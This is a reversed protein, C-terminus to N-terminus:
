SRSITAHIKKKKKKEEEKKEVLNLEKLESSLILLEIKEFQSLFVRVRANVCAYSRSDLLLFLSVSIHIRQVRARSLFFSSTFINETIENIARARRRAQKRANVIQVIVVVFTLKFQRRFM